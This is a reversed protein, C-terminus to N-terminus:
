ASVGKAVLATIAPPNAGTVQEVKEGDKYLFITPMARVGLEQAVDPLEDVDVKYFKVNENAKSLQTLLPAIQKCPGCWTAFADIIVAGSKIVEKFEATSTVNHVGTATSLGAAAM